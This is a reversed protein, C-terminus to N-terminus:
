SLLSIIKEMARKYGIADAQLMQWNPSDYQSKSLSFSSKIEDECIEILRDRMVTSSLFSQKIDKVLQDNNTHQTWTKKM